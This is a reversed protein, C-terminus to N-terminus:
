SLYAAQLELPKWIEVAHREILQHEHFDNETAAPVLASNRAGWWFSMQTFKSAVSRGTFDRQCGM